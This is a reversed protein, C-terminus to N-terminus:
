GQDLVQRVKKLLIMPTYPKHLFAVEAQLIGHRVVADDTYGSLYLVKMAPFMPQLAEALQRGSMGPMVVDTVLIDIEDHRRRLIEMAEEGSAASHVKYGQRQLALLAIQRVSDEDEVLLITEDGDIAQHIVDPARHKKVSGSIAPLYVKFASGVNLETYVGIHGSSQQVIGHVVSLGLGTGKNVGKTTFFPEFIRASVEPTMGSGTDSVTLLVYQGADVQVHTSVYPADLVVDRTEITISGGQPMADRANVVLNMLVQGIQTPDARVQSLEPSLATTLRIDEGIMRRLMKEADQVIANIDLAQTELVTQRSFSLLQRTLDAARWGAENIENVPARSPDDEPLTALLVESYGSIITLLNNFDHAIGGALQGMLEMKQSQQIQQELIRRRTVDAQVGVFKILQGHDDHVPSIFLANWFTTGDKRYNIMEVSCERGARIAERVELVTQPDTLPGQLFRANLGLIDENAYGTLRTLGPSAYIIPNDPQNPDTILIGQSVAQIARDRLRLEREKQRQETIDRVVGTFHRVDNLFFESVGLEIPFTSGDKRRAVVQRGTGIIKPIHTTRYNHLYRDHESHYPEPMLLKVNQGIVEAETYGFLKRAALNFSQILGQDDIGIIGDLANDVVAALLAESRKWATIDRVVGTFHRVDNLFFESVGLEIPFTSGDKRRAVVQRGTGIIKPIHTTRYSHLYRDHESHYPEPMLLKVNQGIVEAETYGFLKRAALNFSQILGQDDIGIIGDLANDLVASLLAKTHETTADKYATIDFVAGIYGNVMKDAGRWPSGQDLVWRYHGDAHLLRYEIRSPQGNDFAARYGSLVRPLDDPHVGQTWGDGIEEELSRGRFALWAENFFAHQTDASAFWLM